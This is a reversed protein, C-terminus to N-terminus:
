ALPRTRLHTTLRRLSREYPSRHPYLLRFSDALLPLHPLLHILHGAVLDTRVLYEPLVAVGQGSRALQRIAEGTGCLRVDDFDTPEPVASTLYRALPLTEDIDLLTHDRTDTPDDLARDALLSPAGVFVYDERHLFQSTWDRHAVAASTVVADVLGRELRSLIDPGSGFYLDLTLEPVVTPVDVVAPVLWSVGLEFRTGLTVRAPLPTDPAVVERCHQAQILASEAEPVLRLGAATLRVSRTTRDLLRKGLTEELQRIRQGFAAPTLGQVRAARRFNLHRAAELFCQLNELTPLNTAPSM